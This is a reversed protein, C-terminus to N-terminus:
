GGPFLVKDGPVDGGPVWGLPVPDVRVRVRVRVRGICVVPVDGGNDVPVVSIGDFVQELMVIPVVVINEVVVTYPHKSM